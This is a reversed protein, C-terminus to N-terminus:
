ENDAVKSSLYYRCSEASSSPLSVQSIYIQWPMQPLGTYRLCSEKRHCPLTDGLLGACKNKREDKM